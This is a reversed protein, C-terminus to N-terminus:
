LWVWRRALFGVSGILLVPRRVMSTRVSGPLLPLDHQKGSPNGSRDMAGQGLNM